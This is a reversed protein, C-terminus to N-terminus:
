QMLALRAPKLEVLLNRRANICASRDTSVRKCHMILQWFMPIYCVHFLFLLRGREFGMM